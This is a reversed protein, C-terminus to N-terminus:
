DHSTIPIYEQMRNRLWDAADYMGLRTAVWHLDNLQTLVDDQRQPRQAIAYETRTRKSPSDIM